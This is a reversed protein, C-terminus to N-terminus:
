DPNNQLISEPEKLFEPGILTEPLSDEQSDNGCLRVSRKSVYGSIIEGTQPDKIQAAYYYPVDGVVIVSQDPEILRIVQSSTDPEEYLRAPHLIEGIGSASLSVILELLIVFFFKELIWAVVPHTKSFAQISDMFRQEWNGGSTLIAKVEEAAARRDDESPTPSEQFNKSSSVEEAM